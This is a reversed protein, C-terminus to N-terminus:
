IKVAMDFIVPDSVLTPLIYKYPAIGHAVSYKKMMIRKMVAALTRDLKDRLLGYDHAKQESNMPICM